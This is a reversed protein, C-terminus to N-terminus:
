SGVIDATTNMVRAYLSRSPPCRQIRHAEEFAELQKEYIIEEKRAERAERARKREQWGSLWVGLLTFIGVLLAVLFLHNILLLQYYQYSRM